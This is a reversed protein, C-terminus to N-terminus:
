MSYRIRVETCVAEAAIKAAAKFAAKMAKRAKVKEHRIDSEEKAAAKKSRIANEDKHALM